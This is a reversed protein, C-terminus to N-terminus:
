TKLLKEATPKLGSKPYNTVLRSFFEKAETRKGMDWYCKGTFSLLWDKHPFDVFSAETKAFQDIAQQYQKMEMLCQGVRFSALPAVEQAGFNSVVKQFEPLASPPDGKMLYTAAIQYQAYSKLDVDSSANIAKRVEAIGADHQGIIARTTGIALYIEDLYSSSGQGTQGRDFSTLANQYERM